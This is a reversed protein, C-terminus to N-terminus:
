ISYSERLKGDFREFFVDQAFKSLQIFNVNVGTKKNWLFVAKNMSEANRDRAIADHKGPEEDIQSM